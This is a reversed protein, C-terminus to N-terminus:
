NANRFRFGLASQKGTLVISRGASHNTAFEEDVCFTDNLVTVAGRLKLRYPCLVAKAGGKKLGEIQYERQAFNGFTQTYAASLNMYFCVYVFYAVVPFGLAVKMSAPLKEPVEPPRPPALKLLVVFLFACYFTAVLAAIWRFSPTPVFHMGTGFIGLFFPVLLLALLITRLVKLHV